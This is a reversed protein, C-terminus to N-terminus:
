LFTAFYAKSIWLSTCLPRVTLPPLTFTFFIFFIIFYILIERSIQAIFTIEAHNWDNRANKYDFDSFKRMDEQEFLRSFALSTRDPSAAYIHTHSVPSATMDLSMYLHITM